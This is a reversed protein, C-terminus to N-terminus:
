LDPLLERFVTPEPFGDGGALVGGLDEAVSTVANL